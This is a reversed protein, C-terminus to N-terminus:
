NIGTHCSSPSGSAGLLAKRPNEGDGIREVAANNCCVMNNLCYYFNKFLLFFFLQQNSQQGHMRKSLMLTYM